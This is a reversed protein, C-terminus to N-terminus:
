DNYHKLFDFWEKSNFNSCMGITQFYIISNKYEDINPIRNFKPNHMINIIHITKQVDNAKIYSYLCENILQPEHQSAKELYMAWEKWNTEPIDKPNETPLFSCFYHYKNALKFGLKEAIRISGKNSDVCSWNIKKYGRSFCENITATVSILGYGQKQYNSDTNVGITIEDIYFCDCLSWSVIIDANRIYNGIGYINFREDSGLEKAWDLIRDANKYSHMRLNTLNVKEIVFGYPLLIAQENFHEKSLNYSRRMFPKVFKNKHIQPILKFWENTDPTLTDWFDIKSSIESNFVNDNTDGAILNCENIQILATTPKDIHNVFVEGPHDGDLVSFISIENHSKILPIIKSYYDKTLKHM